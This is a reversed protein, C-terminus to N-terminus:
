SCAVSPFFFNQIFIICLYNGNQSSLKQFHSPYAQKSSLNMALWESSKHIVYCPQVTVTFCHQYWFTVVTSLIITIDIATINCSYSPKHLHQMQVCQHNLQNERLTKWDCPRVTHVNHFSFESFFNRRRKKRKSYRHRLIHQWTFKSM